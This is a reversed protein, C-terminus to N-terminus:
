RGSATMKPRKSNGKKATGKESLGASNFGLSEAARLAARQRTTLVDVASTSRRRIVLMRVYSSASLGLRHAESKVEELLEPGLDTQM